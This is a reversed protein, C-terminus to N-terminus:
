DADPLDLYNRDCFKECWKVWARLESLTKPGVGPIRLIETDSKSEIQEPTEIGEARLVSECRASFGYEM